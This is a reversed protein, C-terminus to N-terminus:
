PSCLGTRGCRPPMLRGAGTMVATATTLRLEINWAIVTGVEVALRSPGTWTVSIDAISAASIAADFYRTCSKPPTDTYFVWVGDPRSAM